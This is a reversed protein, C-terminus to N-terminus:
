IHIKTTQWRSPLKSTPLRDEVFIRFFTPMSSLEVKYIIDSLSIRRRKKNIVLFMTVIPTPLFKKGSSGFSTFNTNEWEFSFSKKSLIEFELPFGPGGRGGRGGGM